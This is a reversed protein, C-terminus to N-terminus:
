STQVPLRSAFGTSIPVPLPEAIEKLRRSLALYLCLLAFPVAERFMMNTIGDLLYAIFGALVSLALGGVLKDKNKLLSVCNLIGCFLIGGYGILGLIGVEAAVWLFANHVPREAMEGYHGPNALRPDEIAEIYNGPGYGFFPSSVWIAIATQALEFRVDILEKPAQMVKKNVIDYLKPSLPLMLFLLTLIVMFARDQKWSFFVIWISFLAAVTFGSWGSRSFTVVLGSIGFLFCVLLAARFSVPYFSILLFVLPIPLSMAMYLGLSHPAITTGAGRIEDEIGPVVDQTGFETSSINGKTNGVGVNGSLHEYVAIAGELVIALCVFIIIWRLHRRKIKHALFFYILAHKINYIIDFVALMKDPAGLLSISQTFLLLAIFLDIRSLRPLPESRAVFIKCFWSFYAMAILVEALGFGIGKAPVAVAQVALWKGYLAFPINLVMACVLFDDIFAVSILAISIVIVAASAALAYRADLSIIKWALLSFLAGMLIAVIFHGGSIRLGDRFPAM